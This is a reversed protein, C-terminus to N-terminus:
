RIPIWRVIRTVLLTLPSQGDNRITASRGSPLALQTGADLHRHSAGVQVEAAGTLITLSAEGAIEASHGAAVELESVTATAQRSLIRERGWPHVLQVADLHERRGTAALHDVVQKVAQSHGAAAVLVSDGTAIITLGNVGVAAVLPGDSRILANRSGISIVDGHLHNGDDDRDVVPLLADWSGVDSWGMDVPVVAVRADHELVAYDVSDSPCAAFATADPRVCTSDVSINAMAGQVATAIPEAHTALAALFRDVRMLFIGGNWAYHGDALYREATTSDPKEVFQAARHVGRAIADGIRIYGYGTEPATPTIGFTVLWGDDAAPRATEVAALFAHRDAISHDSPMVLMVANPDRRAIWTAALAIAPATNRGTPELIIAASPAGVAALQAEIIGLHQENAVVVSRHFKGPDSVRLATAQLMTKTGVLTLLQKPTAARSLPWLRTGAGGSLIVPWIM